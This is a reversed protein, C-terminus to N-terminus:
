FDFPAGWLESLVTLKTHGFAASDMGVRGLVMCSAFSIYLFHSNRQVFSIADLIMRQSQVRLVLVSSRIDPARLLM